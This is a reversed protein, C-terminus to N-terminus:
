KPGKNLEWKLIPIWILADKSTSQRAEAQVDGSFPLGREIIPELTLSGKSNLSKRLM